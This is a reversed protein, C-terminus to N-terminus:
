IRSNRSCDYSACLQDVVDVGVKTENYTTVIVPECKEGSDPGIDDHHHM